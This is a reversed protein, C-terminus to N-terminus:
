LQRRNMMIGGTASHTRSASSVLIRLSLNTSFVYILFSQTDDELVKLLTFFFALHGQNYAARL